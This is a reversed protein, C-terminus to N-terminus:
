STVSGHVRMARSLPSPAAPKSTRARVSSDGCCGPDAVGTAATMAGTVGTMRGTMRRDGRDDRRDERRERVKGLLGPRDKRDGFLGM